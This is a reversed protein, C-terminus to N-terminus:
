TGDNRTVDKNDEQSKQNNNKYRKYEDFKGEFWFITFPGPLIDKIKKYHYIKGDACRYMLHPIRTGKQKKFIIQGPGKSLRILIVGLLCNGYKFRNLIKINM